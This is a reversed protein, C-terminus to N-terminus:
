NGGPTIIETTTQLLVFIEGEGGMQGGLQGCFTELLIKLEAVQSCNALFGFDSGVIFLASLDLFLNAPFRTDFHARNVTLPSM